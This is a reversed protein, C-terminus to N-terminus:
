ALALHNDWHTAPTSSLLQLPKDRDTTVELLQGLGNSVVFANIDPLWLAGAVDKVPAHKVPINNTLDWLSVLNGRPTTTLAWHGDASVAISAIYQNMSAWDLNSTQMAQLQPQGRQHSFVLPMAENPLSELSQDQMGIIVRDDLTVAIHRVSLHHHPPAVTAVIRGSEMDLYSLNPAMTALNLTDRGHDPHTEIGGNAVVIQNSHHLRAMQHPGLGGSLWEGVRQFPAQARYIGIVGVRRTYANETIYLYQGDASTVGHGYFHHGEPATITNALAGAQMDVVYFINSPRRGFFIALQSGPLHFAEHAREAVPICFVRHGNLQQGLLCHRGLDDDSASLLLPSNERTAVGSYYAAGTTVGALALLSTSAMGARIFLQRRNIGTM